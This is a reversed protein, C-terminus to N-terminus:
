AVPDAGLNNKIEGLVWVKKINQRQECKGVAQFLSGCRKINSKYVDEPVLKFVIKESFDKWM